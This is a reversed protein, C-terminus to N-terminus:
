LGFVAAARAMCNVWGLRIWLGPNLRCCLAQATKPSWASLAVALLRLVWTGLHHGQYARLVPYVLFDVSGRPDRGSCNGHALM